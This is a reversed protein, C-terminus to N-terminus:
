QRQIGHTVLRGQADSIPRNSNSDAYMAIDANKTLFEFDLRDRELAVGASNMLADHTRQERANLIYLGMAREAARAAKAAVLYFTAAVFYITLATYFDM